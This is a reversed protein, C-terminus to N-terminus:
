KASGGFRPATADLIANARAVAAGADLGEAFVASSLATFEAGTAAATEVSAVASGAMVIAPIDIMEAWWRALGLNRPHPEPKNDFGFRGFFMYDPRQEGLALAEDRTKVNGTGVAMRAQFRGVAEALAAAGGEVHIGDAGLRGAVRTDGAVIAAVGKEQALAALPAAAAQFADEGLSGQVLILSAVDGGALAGELRAAFAVAAWDPPAILVIRCRDPPPSPM